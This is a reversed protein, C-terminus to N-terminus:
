GRQPAACSSSWDLGKPRFFRLKRDSLLIEVDRGRRIEGDLNVLEEQACHVTLKQTRIHRFLAPYEAYRGAKYAGIMSAVQFRSVKSVLLVDLIGDDPMAEPVPEYGGGYFRGNCICILTLRSDIRQGNVEILYHHHLPHALNIVTSLTYAGNGSILPLRKCSQVAGAIRADLGISCISLCHDPGVRILDLLLEESDLLRELSRFATPDSFNKIFDNGSGCPFHTVALHEVGAAGCVVENLTGDGGCAYIRCFSSDAAAERTIATCDGPRRSVRISYDLGRGDCFGRIKASLAATQDFKGAAPNIIFLHKM